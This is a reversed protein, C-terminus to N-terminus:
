KHTCNRHKEGTINSSFDILWDIFWFLRRGSRVTTVLASERVTYTCEQTCVCANVDTRVNFIGHDMDSNPLNHFCEFVWCTRLTAGSQRLQSEVSFAVRIKWQLFGLTVLCNNFFFILSCAFTRSMTLSLSWKTTELPNPPFSTSHFPFAPILFFSNRAAPSTSLAIIKRQASCFRQCTQIRLM